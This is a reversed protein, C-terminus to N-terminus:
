TIRTAAVVFDDAEAASSLTLVKGALDPRAKSWSGDFRIDIRGTARDIAAIVADRADYCMGLGVAKVAAEKACWARFFWSPGPGAAALVAKDKDSFAGNIFDDSLDRLHEVDVGVSAGEGAIAVTIGDTHSISIEIPAEVKGEWPGRAVPKGNADPEITFDPSPVQLKYKAMLHRRVAEKAATRGLLWQIRRREAGEFKKWYELEAPSLMLFALMKQWVRHSSEFLDSPLDKLIAGTFGAPIVPSKWEDSFYMWTSGLFIRHLGPSLNFIRDEWETLDMYLNGAADVAYIHATCTMETERLIKVRLGLKTGVPQPPGYFDIRKVRFPLFVIGNYLDYADWLGLAAGLADLFIGDITFTPDPNSKFLDSRDLVELTGEMGDDAWRDISKIAQFRPGHFLREPYIAKGKWASPKLPGLTLPEGRKPAPYADGVVVTAECLPPRFANRPDDAREEKISVRVEHAVKPDRTATIRVTSEGDEFAIWRQAQVNKMGIVKKGTMLAAAAESMIELSMTLPMISFGRYLPRDFSAQVGLTHDQLFVDEDLAYKRINVLLRGPEHEITQGLMPFEHYPAADRGRREDYAKDVHPPAPRVARGESVDGSLFADHYPAADRGRREDHANDHPPPAPRGARGESVGGSLFTDQYHTADRGRREDHANDVHPPAPRGARGGSVFADIIEKQTTLFQDMTEIYSLMVQDAIRSDVVAPVPMGPRSAAIPVAARKRPAIKLASIVPSQTDLKRKPKAAAGGSGPEILKSGRRVHLYDLNMDVGHAALMGLAFHLQTIGSKHIRNGAVALHPQGKLIDDVFSTLNGRPGIEVFIRIGDAYMKNVTETFRVRSAWQDVALREIEKADSPFKEASCCSYIDVRPKHLGVKKFFARLGDLAPRFGESHYPRSFPLPSCIAGEASLLASVETIVAKPGCLVYQHPCNDMALLLKGPYKAMVEDIVPREPGGVTLLTAEPMNKAANMEKMLHYGALIYDRERAADDKFAVIGAVELAFFEGSSHGVVADPKIELGRFIRMLATDASVVAEVAGEMGWLAEDDAGEQVTGPPPFILSSPVFGDKALAIARDVSDFAERAEPFCMCLDSLMNTYQAGEGPIVYALGQAGLRDEYYFIGSKDQMRVTDPKQLKERAHALKKRLEEISAAVIALCPGGKVRTRSMTHAVDALLIGPMPLIQDELKRVNSVVDARSAGGVLILETDLTKFYSRAQM